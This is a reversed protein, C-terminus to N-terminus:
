RLPDLEIVEALWAPKPSRAIEHGGRDERDTEGPYGKGHPWPSVENVFGTGDGAGVGHEVVMAAGAMELRKLRHGPQHAEIRVHVRHRIRRTPAAMITRRVVTGLRATRRTMLFVSAVGDQCPDGISLAGDAMRVQLRRAAAAARAPKGAVDVAETGIVGREAGPLVAYGVDTR